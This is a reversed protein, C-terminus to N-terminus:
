VPLNIIFSTGIGENTEVQIDGGHGKRVVDYSLSLGLGTGLGTPKTTFFPQFIKDLLMKPIGNGNDSVRIEVKNPLKRTAVTVTPQYDAPMTKKKDTVAYFANNILNLIVRGIDQPVVSIRGISEDFETKMFANFSKDKARLGHYSLRFYEDCIANIDVMEKVGSKSRSHQLMGKVIADARKGHYVIKEENEIIDQAIDKAEHVNGMDLEAQMEALLEKNVDSFNNIFNLPNQIEHAIGATLEGLSAMKESQILQNQTNKLEEISEQLQKTRTQVKEELVKNELQLQRSRYVIYARLAGVGLLIFITYAWWTQYWPPLVTFSFSVPESWVRDVGMGAVRFTYKGPSLNLYNETSPKISPLSWSKDVGELVYVYKTPEQSGLHSMIFHFQVSNQNYPIELNVPLAFPGAVSDRAFQELSAYGKFKPKQGKVYISDETVLTDKDNLTMENIFYKPRTMINVGTIHIPNKAHYPTIHYVMKLGRDGWILNGKGTIADTSWAQANERVLNESKDMLSIHWKKSTDGSVWPPTIISVKKNSAAIINGKYELLSLTLDDFLGEKTTLTTITNEKKDIVYIGKDTGVWIKGWTDRILMKFCTDALGPVSRINQITGKRTDVIDLGRFRTALLVEKGDEDLNIDVIENDSLGLEKGSHYLSKQSLNIRYVGNNPGALWINETDTKRVVYISDNTMGQKRGFHQITKQIPDIIDFGGNTTVWIERGNKVFSQVFNNGLGNSVDFNRIRKKVPDILRIGKATAAWIIGTSDEMTSIIQIRALPTTTEANQDIYHMGSITLVWMRNNNDLIFGAIFNGALGNKTSIERMSGALPDLVNIGNGTGIWIRGINDLSMNSLFTKRVGQDLGYHIRSSQKLNIAELNADFDAIWITGSSDKTIARYDDSPLGSKTTLYRIKKNKEDIINIGKTNTTIWIDGDNTQIVDSGGTDDSLGESRGITKFSMSYPDIVIVKKSKTRPIWIRGKKDVFLRSINREPSSVMECTKLLGARQDILTIQHTQIVWIRGTADEAIGLPATNQNLKLITQLYEGDYKFLGEGSGIWLLGKSDKLASTVFKAPLGQSPGLDYITLASDKQIEPPLIKEPSTPTTLFSKFVLQTSPLSELDFSSDPLNKLDIPSEAPPKTFSKFGTSDYEYYPLRSLDLSKKELILQGQSITDWQFKRTETIQLPSTQPQAYGFEKDPFPVPDPQRNCALLLLFFIVFVIQGSFKSM